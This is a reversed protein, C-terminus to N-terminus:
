DVFVDELGRMLSVGALLVVVGLIVLLTKM